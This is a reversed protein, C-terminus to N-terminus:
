YYTNFKPYYNKSTSAYSIIRKRRTYCGDGAFLRNLFLRIKEKSCKLIIKPIEKDKSKTIKLGYNKCFHKWFGYSPCGASGKRKEKKFPIKHREIQKIRYDINSIQHLKLGHEKLANDMDKAMLLNATTFSPSSPSVTMGGEAIMYAMIKLASDSISFNSNIIELTRPVAIYDGQKLQKVKKWGNITLLPHNSTLNVERGDETKILFIEKIGNEFIDILNDEVLKFKDNLSITRITKKNKFADKVKVKEGNVCLIEDNGSLCKGSQQTVGTVILHSPNVDVQKGTKIEYGLKIKKNMKEGGNNQWLM